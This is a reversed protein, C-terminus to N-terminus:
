PGRSACPPAPHGGSAPVGRPARRPATVVPRPCGASRVAARPSWRVRSGSPHERIPAEGARGLDSGPRVRQQATQALHTTQASRLARGKYASPLTGPLRPPAPPRPVPRALAAGPLASRPTWCRESNWAFEARRFPGSPSNGVLTHIVSIVLHRSKSPM